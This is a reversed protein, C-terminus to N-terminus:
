FVGGTYISKPYVKKLEEWQIIFLDAFPYVLRGTISPGDIRAFSEIYIIKKGLLKGAVCAPFATLAGTSIVCDPKEKRFIKLDQLFIGIMYFPFLIEHRNTQRVFYVREGVTRPIFRSRETIMFIEHHKGLEELCCIEDLHGGSSAAFCIKM